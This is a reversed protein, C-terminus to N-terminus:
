YRHDTKGAKPTTPLAMLLNNFVNDMLRSVCKIATHPKIPRSLKFIQKNKLSFNLTFIINDPQPTQRWSYDTIHNAEPVSLEHWGEVKSTPSQKAKM